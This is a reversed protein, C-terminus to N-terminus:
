RRGLGARLFPNTELEESLSLPFRRSARPARPRAIRAIRAQLPRRQRARDNDRFRRMPSETYEHGPVFSRDRPAPRGAKSLSAWMQPMTGEFVRGCGLAMLSDATFAATPRRCISRSTGSRHAGVCGHGSVESGASHRITDGDGMPLTWLHCSSPCRSCRRGRPCGRWTVSEPRRTGEIHDDHHHTIWIEDLQGFPGARGFSPWRDSGGRACRDFGDKGNGHVILFAYNDTCVPFPSSRLLCTFVEKRASAITDLQSDSWLRALEAICRSTSSRCFRRNGSAGQGRRSLAGDAVCIAQLKPRLHGPIFTTPKPNVAGAEAGKGSFIARRTMESMGACCPTICTARLVHGVDRDQALFRKQGM